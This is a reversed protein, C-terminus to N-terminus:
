VAGLSKLIISLSDVEPIMILHSTIKFNHLKSVEIQLEEIKNNQFEIITGCCKCIMHDHH